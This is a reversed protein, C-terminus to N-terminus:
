KKEKQENRADILQVYEQIPAKERRGDYSYIKELLPYTKIVKEYQKQLPSKGDLKPLLNLNLVNNLGQITGFKNQLNQKLEHFAKSFILYPSTESLDLDLEFQDEVDLSNYTLYNLYNDNFNAEKTFGEVKEKVWDALSTWSDLDMKELHPSRIGYITPLTVKLAKLSDIITRLTSYGECGYKGKFIPIGSSLEIYVGGELESEDEVGKWAHKKLDKKSRGAWINEVDLEYIKILSRPVNGGKNLLSPHINFSSIKELSSVKIGTTVEFEQAAKDSKFDLIYLYQLNEEAEFILKARGALAKCKDYAVFKINHECDIKNDWTGRVTYYGYSRSKRVKKFVTIDCDPFNCAAITDKIVEGKWKFGHSIEKAFFYNLFYNKVVSGFFKKVEFVTQCDTFKKLLSDQIEKKVEELKAKISKVTLDTYQLGERNASVQLEGINFKLELSNGLIKYAKDDNLKEHIATRDIDYAVNGMIVYAEGGNGFYKWGNGSLLIEKEKEEVETDNVLNPKVDFYQFIEHAKRLFESVDHRKVAIEIETGNPENTDETLLKAIRGIGSEDIYCNYTTKSGNVYGIVNFSDTYCFGSKSGIGLMGIVDNSNRKTSKGYYCYINQIDSESLGDGYDRIKLYLDFNTPLTVLFPVDKKGAVVHADFANCSYERIVASIKDTYLQNRLINFVQPLGESDVGFAYEKFNDSKEVQNFTQTQIM